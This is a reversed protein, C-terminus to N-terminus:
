KLLENELWSKIREAHISLDDIGARWGYHRSWRQWPKGEITQNALAGIPRGDTRSLPPHFYVMDLKAAPYGASMLIAADVHAHNYGAPVPFDHLIVYPKNGDRIAEWGPHNADLYETDGELLAFDRRVPVPSVAIAAETASPSTEGESNEKPITIFRELGPTLLNVITDPNISEVKGGRLRQRLNFSEPKKSALALIEAGKLEVQDTTYHHDDIRIRYVRAAPPTKGAKGYEEIDVQEVEPSKDKDKEKLIPEEPGKRSNM